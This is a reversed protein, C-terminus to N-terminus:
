QVCVVTQHLLVIKSHLYTDMNLSSFVSVGLVPGSNCLNTYTIYSLNSNLEESEEVPAEVPWM